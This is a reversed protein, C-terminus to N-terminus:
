AAEWHVVFIDRFFTRTKDQGCSTKLAECSVSASHHKMSYYFSIERGCVWVYMCPSEKDQTTFFNYKWFAMCSQHYTEALKFDREPPQKEHLAFGPIHPTNDDTKRGTSCM